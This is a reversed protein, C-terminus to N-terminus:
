TFYTGLSLFPIPSFATRDEKQIYQVDSYMYLGLSPWGHLM